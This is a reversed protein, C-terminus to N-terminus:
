VMALKAYNSESLAIPWDNRLPGLRDILADYVLVSDSLKSLESIHNKEVNNEKQIYVNLRDFFDLKFKQEIKKVLHVSADISCGSPLTQNDQVVFLLFYPNIVDARSLLKNGHAAWENSFSILEKQILKVEQDSLERNSQYLWVRADDTFDNFSNLEVM